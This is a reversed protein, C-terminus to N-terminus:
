KQFQYWSQNYSQVADEKFLVEKEKDTEVMRIIDGCFLLAGDARDLEIILYSQFTLMTLAGLLTLAIYGKHDKMVTDRQMWLTASYKVIDGQSSM